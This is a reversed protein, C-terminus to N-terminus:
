QGFRRAIQQWRGWCIVGAGALLAAPMAFATHLVTVHTIIAGIMTCGLLPAGIGALGPILLLIACGVEIVGTVYRFWQGLGITDYMQVMPPAGTLKASGAMLFVAALLIQVIWLVVNKAKGISEASRVMTPQTM